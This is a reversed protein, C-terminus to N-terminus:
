GWRFPIKKRKEKKSEQNLINLNEMRHQEMRLKKNYIAKVLHNELTEQKNNNLIHDKNSRKFIEKLYEASYIQSNENRTPPKTCHVSYNVVVLLLIVLIFKFM